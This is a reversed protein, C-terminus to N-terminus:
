IDKGFTIAFDISKGLHSVGALYSGSTSNLWQAEKPLLTTVVLVPSIMVSGVASIILCMRAMSTICSGPHNVNEDVHFFLKRQPSLLCLRACWHV